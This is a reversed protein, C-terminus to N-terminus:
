DLIRIGSSSGTGYNNIRYGGGFPSSIQTFSQNGYTTPPVFSSTTFPNFSPSYTSNFSPTYGTMQGSFYNGLNRLFSTRTNNYNPRSLIVNRVNEYRRNIDGSQVAGFAQMELRQLRELDSERQFNKNFSYKELANIDSFHSSQYYKASPTHRYIPNSHTRTYYNPNNYYDHSYYNSQPALRNYNPSEFRVIKSEACNTTVTFLTFITLIILYRSM